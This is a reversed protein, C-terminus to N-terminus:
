AAAKRLAIPHPSPKPFNERVIQRRAAPMIRAVSDEIQWRASGRRWMEYLARRGFENNARKVIREREIQGGRYFIPSCVPSASRSNGFTTHREPRLSYEAETCGQKGAFIEPPADLKKCGSEWKGIGL